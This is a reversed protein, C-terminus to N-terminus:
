NQNCSGRGVKADLSNPLEANNLCCYTICGLWWKVGSLAAAERSTRAFHIAQRPTSTPQGAVDTIHFHTALSFDRALLLWPVCPVLDFTSNTRETKWETGLARLWLM